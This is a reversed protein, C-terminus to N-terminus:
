KRDRSQIVLVTGSHVQLVGEEALIENSLTYLDDYAIEQRELPYRMGQLTIVATDRAFFSIYAYDKRGIRHTGEACAYILNQADALVLRGPHRCVLRLNVLSHDARGGLAGAMIIKEYGQELADRLAAESDSDDKIPNLRIVTDSYQEILAMQEHSVSDFDGIAKKMRIGKEALIWAGRDAGIYDADLEPIWAAYSLVIVACACM